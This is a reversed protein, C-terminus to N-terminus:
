KFPRLIMINQLKQVRSLMVYVGSRINGDNLDIIAKELTAGQCKFETFAFAPTIPLQTRQFERTITSGNEIKHTYKCKQKIPYIPVHNTPLSDYAGATNNLLKIVIYKPPKDIIINKTKNTDTSEIVQTTNDYVIKQLIGQAGNTMGDRVYINVTLALKMGISLPLIGCLANSKTDSISLFKRKISNCITNNKYTDKAYIYYIPQNHSKAQNITSELNIQIRM